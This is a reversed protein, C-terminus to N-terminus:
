TRFHLVSLCSVSIVDYAIKLRVYKGIDNPLTQLSVDNLALHALTRLQTFGDPLRFCFVSSFNHMSARRICTIPDSWDWVRVLFLWDTQLDKNSWFDRPCWPIYEHDARLRPRLFQILIFHLCNLRQADWQMDYSFTIFSWSLSCKFKEAGCYHHVTITHKESVQRSLPNGSFDAIELARCFKISEPIEPIDALFFSPRPSSFWCLPGLACSTHTANQSIFWKLNNATVALHDHTICPFWSFFCCHPQLTAYCLHVYKLMLASNIKKTLCVM